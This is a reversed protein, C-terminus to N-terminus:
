LDITIIELHTEQASLAEQLIAVGTSHVSHVTRFQHHISSIDQLRWTTAQVAGFMMHVQHFAHLWNYSGWLSQCLSYVACQTVSHLIYPHQDAEKSLGM